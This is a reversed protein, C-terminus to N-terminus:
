ASIPTVGELSTRLVLCLESWQGGSQGRRLPAAHPGGIEDCLLQGLCEHGLAELYKIFRVLVGAMGPVSWAPLSMIADINHRFYKFSLGPEFAMPHNVLQKRGLKCATYM